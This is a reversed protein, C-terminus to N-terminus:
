LSKLYATIDAIAQPTLGLNAPSYMLSKEMPKV